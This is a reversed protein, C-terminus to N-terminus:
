RGGSRRGPERSEETSGKSCRRAARSSARRRSLQVMRAAQAYRRYLRFFEEHGSAAQYHLGHAWARDMHPELSTAERLFRDHARMDRALVLMAATPEAGFVGSRAGEEIVLPHPHHISLRIEHSISPRLDELAENPVFTRSGLFARRFEVLGTELLAGLEERKKRDTEMIQYWFLALGIVLASFVSLVTSLLTNLWGLLQDLSALAVGATYFAVAVSIIAAAWAIVRWLASDDGKGM